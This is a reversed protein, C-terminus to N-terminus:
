SLRIRQRITGAAAILGTGLLYLSCPEPAEAPVGADTLFDQATGGSSQSGPEATFLTFQNFLANGGINDLGALEYYHLQNAEQQTLGVAVTADDDLLAWIELQASVQSITGHQAAYIIEAATKQDASSNTSLTTATAQWTEGLTIDNDIDLCYANLTTGNVGIGYPGVYDAGNPTTAGNGVNALSLTDANAAIAGAFFLSIFLVLSKVSANKV